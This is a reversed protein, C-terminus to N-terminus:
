LNNHNFDKSIAIRWSLGYDDSILIVPDHSKVRFKAIERGAKGTDRWKGRQKSKIKEEPWKKDYAELTKRDIHNIFTEYKLFLRGKRDAALKHYWCAYFSRFPEVLYKQKEWPSGLQKRMYVLRFIYGSGVWRSILHLNDKEDCYFAGYTYRGLKRTERRGISVPKTWGSNIDFPKLSRTYKFPHHHAGMIVHIYGKSDIAISPLNHPNPQKGSGNAGLLVPKSLKGTKRNYVVICQPTSGDIDTNKKAQAWAIFVKDGVSEISNGGSHVVTFLSNDSVTIPASLSLNGQSNLSPVIINLIQKKAYGHIIVPPHPLPKNGRRSELQYFEKGPLRYVQWSRCRDKSFLLLGRHLNSRGTAALMYANGKDDFVIREESFTGTQIKGNWRPFKKKIADIFDLKIWKGNKDLTQIMPKEGRTRIYPENDSGFTVVNPYFKPSYGFLEREGRYYKKHVIPTKVIGNLEAANMATLFVLYSVALILKIM